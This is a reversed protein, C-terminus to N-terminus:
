GGTFLLNIVSRVVTVVAAALPWLLAMGVAHLTPAGTARGVGWSLMAGAAAAVLVVSARLGPRPGPAFALVAATLLGAALGLLGLVADHAVMAEAEASSREAVPALAAWGAGVTVGGGGAIGLFVWVERLPRLSPAVGRPAQGTATVAHPPGDGPVPGTRVSSAATGDDGTPVHESTSM